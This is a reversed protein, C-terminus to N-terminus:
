KAKKISEELIRLVTKSGSRMPNIRIMRKILTPDSQLFTGSVRYFMPVLEYKSEAGIPNPAAGLKEAEVLVEEAINEKFEVLLVKSQANALFANKVEPLIGSNLKNVLEENEEAQIALAVPAYTLGRLVEMAQWGQVKSGGSYNMKEIKDILEKKGVIIGVGEPGLLKFSSFCSLDAGLEAGIKEVKMVAYNDDTVITIDKTNKIMKIVEAIDYSDDPKQRTYQVIAGDIKNNTLVERLEELDNYDAEIINANLGQLSTLTTPYIPAKHVLVTANAGVSAMLAFRIAGTGAGTVLISSESEFYKALVKEVKEAYRPKNLGKVVGLDGLSLFSTGDFERCIEDVLRFQKEKAQELTISNLPFTKM